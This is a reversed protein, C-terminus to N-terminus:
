TKLALRPQCKPNESLCFTKEILDWFLQAGNDGTEATIEPKAPHNFVELLQGSNFKQWIFEVSADLSFPLLWNRTQNAPSSLLQHRKFFKLNDFEQRGVPQAFFLVSGAVAEHSLLAKFSQESPKTIEASIVHNLYVQDYLDVTKQYSKATYLKVYPKNQMTEIFELTFPAKRCVIHFVFRASKAHLKEILHVFFHTGVAAGSIPIAINIPIQSSQDYQDQREKLQSASLKISFDPNIPYPLVAIPVPRLHAKRGYEALTAKTGAGPCVILDAQDVYWISQPSDDTVQVVLYIKVNLITTLETMIAGLQHALGFHTAIVIVTQPRDAQSLILNIFQEALDEVHTKLYNRFYHTFIAQPLGRQVWETIERAVLNISTLRHMTEIFKNAPSFVTSSFHKPLSTRFADTVRIHGLGAPAYTFVVLPKTQIM